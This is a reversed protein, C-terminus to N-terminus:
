HLLRSETKGMSNTRAGEQGTSTSEIRSGEEEHPGTGPDQPSPTHPKFEPAPFSLQDTIPNFSLATSCMAKIISFHQGIVAAYLPRYNDRFAGPVAPTISFDIVEEM